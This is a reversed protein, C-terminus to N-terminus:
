EEILEITIVEKDAILNILKDFETYGGFNLWTQCGHSWDWSESGPHCQVLEIIFEGNHNPNAIASPLVWMMPYINAESKVGEIKQGPLLKFLKLVRIPQSQYAVPRLGAIAYYNGAKLKGGHYSVTSDTNVYQSSDILKGSEDYLESSSDYLDGNTCKFKVTSKGRYIKLNKLM